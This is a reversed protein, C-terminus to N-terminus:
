TPDKGSLQNTAQLLFAERERIWARLLTEVLKSRFGYTPAGTAPDVCHLTVQDAIHQPIAVRFHPIGSDGNRVRPRGSGYVYTPNTELWRTLLETVLQSRFGSIRKSNHTWLSEAEALLGAPLYLHWTVLAVGHRRRGGASIRHSLTM